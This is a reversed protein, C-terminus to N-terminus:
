SHYRHPDFPCFLPFFRTCRWFDFSQKRLHGLVGKQLLKQDISLVIQVNERHKYYIPREFLKTSKDFAIAFLILVYLRSKLVNGISQRVIAASRRRMAETQVIVFVPFSCKRASRKGLFDNPTAIGNRM